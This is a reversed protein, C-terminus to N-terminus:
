VPVAFGFYALSKANQGPGRKRGFHPTDFGWEAWGWYNHSPNLEIWRRAFPAFDSSEWTPRWREGDWKYLDFDAARSELHDSTMTHSAGIRVYEAQQYTTRGVEKIALRYGEVRHDLLLRGVNDSFEIRDEILGM